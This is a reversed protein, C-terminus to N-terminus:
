DGERGEREWKKELTPGPNVVLALRKRRSEQGKRAAWFSGFLM